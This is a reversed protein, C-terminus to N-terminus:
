SISSARAKGMMGVREIIITNGQIQKQVGLIQEGLRLNAEVHETLRPITVSIIRRDQWRSGRSTKWSGLISGNGGFQPGFWPVM